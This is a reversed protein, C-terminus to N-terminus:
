DSDGAEAPRRRLVFGVFGSDDDPKAYDLTAAGIRGAVERNVLVLPGTGGDIVLDDSRVADVMLHLKGAGDPGVRVGHSDDLHRQSRVSKLEATAAGTVEIM